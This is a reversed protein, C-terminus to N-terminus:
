GKLPHKKSLEALGKYYQHETQLLQLDINETKNFKEKAQDGLLVESVIQHVQRMVSAATVSQSLDLSKELASVQRQLQQIRDSFESNQQRLIHVENQLSVKNQYFGKLYPTKNVIKVIIKKILSKLMFTRM